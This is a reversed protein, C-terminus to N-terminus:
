GYRKQLIAVSKKIMKCLVKENIDALRKVYLCGKGTKHKGLVSLENALEHFGAMLYISIAAKRPAFGSLMWDGKRGSAYVYHYSGFGIINSGWMKAPEGIIEEMIALLRFSDTRKQGDELTNLFVEVSADNPKTKAEAM